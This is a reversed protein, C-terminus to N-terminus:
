VHVGLHAHVSNDKCQGEKPPLTLTCHDLRTKYNAATLEFIIEWRVTRKCDSESPEIGDLIVVEQWQYDAGVAGKDGVSRVEKGLAEYIAGLIDAYLEFCYINVHVEVRVRSLGGNLFKLFPLAPRQRKTLPSPVNLSIQITLDQLVHNTEYIDALTWAESHRSYGYAMGTSIGCSLELNRVYLRRARDTTCRERCCSGSPNNAWLSYDADVQYSDFDVVFKAWHHFHKLTAAHIQKKTRFWVPFRTVMKTTKTADPDCHYTASVETQGHPLTIRLGTLAHHYIADRLERPLQLFPAMAIATGSNSRMVPASSRKPRKSALDLPPVEVNDDLSRKPPNVAILWQDIERVSCSPIGWRPTQRQMNSVSPDHISVPLKSLFFRLHASRSPEVLFTANRYLYIFPLKRHIM